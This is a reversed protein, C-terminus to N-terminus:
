EIKEREIELMIKRFNKIDFKDFYSNEYNTKTKLKLSKFYSSVDKIYNFQNFKDLERLEYSSESEIIYVNKCFKTAEFLLTSNIGIIDSSKTISAYPEDSCDILVNEYNIFSNEYFKINKNEKPHIKFIIKKKTKNALEFTFNLLLHEVSPQSIILINNQDDKFNSKLFYNELYAFGLNFKNNSKLPFNEFNAWNKGFSLFYNPFGKIKKENKYFTYQFTQKLLPGHQFEVTKINLEEAIQCILINNYSYYDVLFIVKPNISKLLFKYFPKRILSFFFIYNLYNLKNKEFELDFIKFIKKVFKIHKLKLTSYYNLITLIKALFNSFTDIFEICLKSKDFNKTQYELELYNIGKLKFENKLFFTYKCEYFGNILNKRPHPIILYDIKRLNKLSKLSQLAKIYRKFRIKLNIKKKKTEWKKLGFLRNQITIFIDLRLLIWYNLGLFKRKLLDNEYEYKNLIDVIDSLKM